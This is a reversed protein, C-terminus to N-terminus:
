SSNNFLGCWGTTAYPVPQLTLLSLLQFLFVFTFHSLSPCVPVGSLSRCGMLISQFGCRDRWFNLNFPTVRTGKAVSWFACKAWFNCFSFSLGPLHAAVLSLSLLLVLSGTNFLACCCTVEAEWMHPEQWGPAICISFEPFHLEVEVLCLGTHMCACVSSIWLLLQLFYHCIDGTSAASGNNFHKIRTCGSWEM